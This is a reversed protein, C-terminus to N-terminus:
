ETYLTYEDTPLQRHLSEDWLSDATHFNSCGASLDRSHLPAHALIHCFAFSASDNRFGSMVFAPLRILTISLCVECSSVDHFKSDSRVISSMNCHMCSTAPIKFNVLIDIAAQNTHFQPRILMGCMGPSFTMFPLLPIRSLRMHMFRMIIQNIEDF